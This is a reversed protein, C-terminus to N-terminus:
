DLWHTITTPRRLLSDGKGKGKGKGKRERKRRGWLELWIGALGGFGMWLREEHLRRECCFVISAIGSACASATQRHDCIWPGIMHRGHTETSTSGDSATRHSTLGVRAVTNLREPSPRSTAPWHHRKLLKRTEECARVLM